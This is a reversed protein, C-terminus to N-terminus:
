LFDLGVIIRTCPSTIENKEIVASEIVIKIRDVFYMSPFWKEITVVMKQIAVLTNIDTTLIGSVRKFLLVQNLYVQFDFMEKEMMNFYFYACVLLKRVTCVFNETMCIEIIGYWIGSLPCM